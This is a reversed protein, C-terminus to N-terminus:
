GAGCSMARISDLRAVDEVLTAKWKERWKKQSEPVKPYQWPYAPDDLRVRMVDVYGYLSDNCPQKVFQMHLEGVARRSGAQLAESWAEDDDTNDYEWYLAEPHGAAALERMMNEGKESDKPGIADEYVEHWKWERPSRHYLAILYQADLDGNGAAEVSRRVDATILSKEIINTRFDDVFDIAMEPFLAVPALLLVLIVVVAALAYLAKM